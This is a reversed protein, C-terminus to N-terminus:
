LKDSGNNKFTRLYKHGYSSSYSLKKVLNSKLGQVSSRLSRKEFLQQTLPHGHDTLTRNFLRINIQDVAEKIYSDFLLAMEVAGCYKM